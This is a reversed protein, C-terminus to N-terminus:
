GVDPGPVVHLRARRAAREVARRRAAEIAADYLEADSLAPGDLDFDDPGPLPTAAVLRDAM